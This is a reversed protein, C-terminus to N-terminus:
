YSASTSPPQLKTSIICANKEVESERKPARFNAPEKINGTSSIGFFGVFAITVVFILNYCM